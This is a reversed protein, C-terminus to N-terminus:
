SRMRRRAFGLGLLGAAFLAIISPEPVTVDGSYTWQLDGETCCGDTDAASSSAIWDSLALSIDPYTPSSTIGSCAGTCLGAASVTMEDAMLEFIPNADDDFLTGAASSQSNFTAGDDWNFVWNDIFAGLNIGSSINTSDIQVFGSLTWNGDESGGNVDWQIPVALTNGSALLLVIMGIIKKM